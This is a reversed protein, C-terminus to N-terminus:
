WVTTPRTLGAAPKQCGPSIFLAFPTGKQHALLKNNLLEHLLYGVMDVAQNVDLRYSVGPRTINEAKIWDIIRRRQAQYKVNDSTEHLQGLRLCSAAATKSCSRLSNIGLTHADVAPPLLGVREMM